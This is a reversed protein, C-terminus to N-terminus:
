FGRGIALRFTPLILNADPLDKGVVVLRRAGSGLTIVFNKRSGLLWQYDLVFGVSLATTSEKSTTNDDVAIRTLGSSLGVGFGELAKEQPYYRYKVESNLYSFGGLTFYGASAGWSNRANIKREYEAGYLGFILNIPSISVIQEVAKPAAVPAAAQASALVPCLVLVSTFVARSGASFRTMYSLPLFLFESM